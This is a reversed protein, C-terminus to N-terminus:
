FMKRYPPIMCLIALILPWYWDINLVFNAFGAWVNFLFITFFFVALKVFKIDHWSLKKVKKSAWKDFKAFCM